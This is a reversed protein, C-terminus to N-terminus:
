SSSIFDKLNIQIILFINLNISPILLPFYYKKSKSFYYNLIKTINQVPTCHDRAHSLDKERMNKWGYFKKQKFYYIFQLLRWTIGPDCPLAISIISKFNLCKILNIFNKEFENIHELTHSAILRSYNKKKIKKRYDLFYFQINKYKKKLNKLNSKYKPSDVITYSKVYRLDMYHIHPQAGGGIEIIHKNYIKKSFGFELLKHNFYYILKALGTYNTNIYNDKEYVINKIKAIKVKM